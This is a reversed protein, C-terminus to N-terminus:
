VYLIYAVVELPLAIAFAFWFTRDLMPITTYFLMFFLFPIAFAIRMWAIVYPNSDRMAMKSLLDGTASFFACLLAGYFWLMM